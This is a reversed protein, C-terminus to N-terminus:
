MPIPRISSHACGPWCTAAGTASNRIRGDILESATKSEQSGTM